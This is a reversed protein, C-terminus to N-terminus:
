NNEFLVRKEASVLLEQDLILNGYINIGKEMETMHLTFRLDEIRSEYLFIETM